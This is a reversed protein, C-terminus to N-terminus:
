LYGYKMEETNHLDFSCTMGFNEARIGHQNAYDVAVSYTFEDLSYNLAEDQVDPSDRREISKIDLFPVSTKDPNTVTYNLVDADPYKERVVESIYRRAALGRDEPTGAERAAEHSALATRKKSWPVKTIEFESIPLGDEDSVVTGSAKELLSETRFANLFPQATARTSHDAKLGDVQVLVAQGQDSDFQIGIRKCEPRESKLVLALRDISKKLFPKNGAKVGLKVVEAIHNQILIESVLDRKSADLSPELRSDPASHMKPTFQGARSDGSARRPHLDEFNSM